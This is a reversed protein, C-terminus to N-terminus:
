KAAEICNATDVKANSVREGTVSLTVAGKGALAYADVYPSSNKTITSDIM